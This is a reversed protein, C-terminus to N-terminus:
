IQKLIEVLQKAAEFRGGPQSPWACESILREVLPFEVKVAEPVGALLDGGLVGQCAGFINHDSTQHTCLDEISYSFCAKGEGCGFAVSHHDVNWGPAKVAKIRTQNVLIINELDVLKVQLDDSVAFNEPLWDTLYLGLNTPNQTFKDAMQLVQLALRARTNWPRTFFATLPRGADEMVAFRGCSGYYTPFPWGEEAPFSMLIIPEPNLFALTLFHEAKLHGKHSQTRKFLFDMLDQSKTCGFTEIDKDLNAKVLDFVLTQDKTMWLSALIRINNGVKDCSNADGQDRNAKQCITKDLRTLERDHGLKKLIVHKDKYLGYYVNKANVVKALSFRTWNTLIVNSSLFAPCLGEGFCAPCKFVDLTKPDKINIVLPWAYM